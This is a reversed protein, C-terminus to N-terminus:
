KITSDLALKHWWWSRARRPGTSPRCRAAARPTRRCTWLEPHPFLLVSNRLWCSYRTVMIMMATHLASWPRLQLRRPCIRVTPVRGAVGAQAPIPSKSTTHSQCCLLHNMTVDPILPAAEYSGLAAASVQFQIGGRCFISIRFFKLLSFLPNSAICKM